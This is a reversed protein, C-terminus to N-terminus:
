LEVQFCWRVVDRSCVVECCGKFVGGCLVVMCCWRM